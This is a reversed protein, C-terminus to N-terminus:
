HNIQIHLNTSNLTKLIQPFKKLKLVNFKFRIVIGLDDDLENGIILIDDIKNDKLFQENNLNTLNSLFINEELKIFKSINESQTEM